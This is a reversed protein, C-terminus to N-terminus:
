TLFKAGRKPTKPINQTALPPSYKSAADSEWSIFSPHTHFIPGSQM